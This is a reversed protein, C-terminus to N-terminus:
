KNNIQDLGYKEIFNFGIDYTKWYPNEYDDHFISDIYYTQTQPEDHEEEEFIYKYYRGDTQINKKEEGSVALLYQPYFSRTVPKADLLLTRLYFDEDPFLRIITSDKRQFELSADQWWMGYFISYEYEYFWDDPILHIYDQLFLASFYAWYFERNSAPVQGVPDHLTNIKGEMLFTINPIKKDITQLGEHTSSYVTLLTIVNAQRFRSEIQQYTGKTIIGKSLLSRRFSRNYLMDTHKVSLFVEDSYVSGPFYLFLEDFMRKDDTVPDTKRIYTERISGTRNILVLTDASPFELHQEVWDQRAPDFIKLRDNRIEYVTQHGYCRIMNDIWAYGPAQRSSSDPHINWIDPRSLVPGNVPDIYEYFGLHNRCLNDTMFRYGNLNLPVTDVPYWDGVILAQNSATLAENLPAEMEEKPACCALLFLFLCSIVPLWKKPHCDKKWDM